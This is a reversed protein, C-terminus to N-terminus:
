EAIAPHEHQAASAASWNAITMISKALSEAVLICRDANAASWECFAYVV